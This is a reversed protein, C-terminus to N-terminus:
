YKAHNLKLIKKQLSHSFYWFNQEFAHSSSDCFCCCCCCCDAFNFILMLGLLSWSFELSFLSSCTSSSRSSLRQKLRRRLCLRSSMLESKFQLVCFSLKFDLSISCPMSSALAFRSISLKIMLLSSSAFNSFKKQNILFYNM